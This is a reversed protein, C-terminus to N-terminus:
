EHEAIIIGARRLSRHADERKIGSRNTLVCADDDRHMANIAGSCRKAIEERRLSFAIPLDYQYRLEIRILEWADMLIIKASHSQWRWIVRHQRAIPPIKPDDVPQKVM